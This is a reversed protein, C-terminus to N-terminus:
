NAKIRNAVWGVLNDIIQSVTAAFTRDSPNNVMNRYVELTNLNSNVQLMAEIISESLTLPNWSLAEIM